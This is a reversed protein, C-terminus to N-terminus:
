WDSEYYAVYDGFAIEKIVNKCFWRIKETDFENYDWANTSWKDALEELKKTDEALYYLEKLDKAKIRMHTGYFEDKTKLGKKQALEYMFEQVAYEKRFYGQENMSELENPFKKDKHYFDKLGRRKKVLYVQQDLGM